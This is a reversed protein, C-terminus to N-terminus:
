GVTPIDEIRTTYCPSLNDRRMQWGCSLRSSAVTITHRGYRANIAELTDMLHTRRVREAATMDFLDTQPVVQDRPVLDSAIVGAKKYSLDPNFHATLASLAIRTLTLLDDTPDKLVIEVCVNGQKKTPKFPNTCAFVTLCGTLSKQKRLQRVVEFIHVSLASTLDSLSSTENAFSRSNCIMQKPHATPDLVICEIGKLEKQTRELVVGFHKRLMATDAEILDSASCIGLTQLAKTTRSGIGWIEKVSTDSLLRIQEQLSLDDWVFVGNSGLREKATHNCLKALTKTPAVGVCCRIGVWDEVRKRINAALAAVESIGALDAFCEDISYIELKPVLSVVAAFVRQSLSNYLEYNSSFVAVGAANFLSTLQFAPTGRGIGLAKAETSRAVVCGDNNSLVVVPSHTLDARFLKECSAYFSNMDILAYSPRLM